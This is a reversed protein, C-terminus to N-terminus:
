LLRHLRQYLMIDKDNVAIDDHHHGLFWLNYKSYNIFRRQPSLILINNAQVNQSTILPSLCPPICTLRLSVQHIAPAHTKNTDALLVDFLLKLFGSIRIGLNLHCLFLLIYYAYLGRLSAHAKVIHSARGNRVIQQRLRVIRIYYYCSIM